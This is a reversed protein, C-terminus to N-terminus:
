DEWEVDEPVTRAQSLNVPPLAAIEEASLQRGRYPKMQDIGLLDLLDIM